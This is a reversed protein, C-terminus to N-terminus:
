QTRILARPITFRLVGSGAWTAAPIELRLSEVDGAPAEFLYVEDTIGLPFIDSKQTLEAAEGGLEAAPSAYVKGAGNTLTPAPRENATGPAGWAATVFEATGRPQHARVRVVLYKEKTLKKKPPATIELPRITAAVIQIRVNKFQLSYRSADVWEPDVATGTAGKGPLPVARLTVTEAASRGRSLEYTPGLLAPWLIAIVVIALSLVAGVSSMRYRPKPRMLAVVVGALGVLTGIIALPLVLMTLWFMVWAFSACLLALGGLLLAATGIPDVTPRTRKPRVPGDFPSPVGVEAAADPQPTMNLLRHPDGDAGAPQLHAPATHAVPPPLATTQAALAATGSTRAAPFLNDDPAATFYSGCRPCQVSAGAAHDALRVKQRCMICETVFPM